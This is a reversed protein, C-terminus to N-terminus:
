GMCIEDQTYIFDKNRYLDHSEHVKDNDLYMGNAVISDFETLCIQRKNKLYFKYFKLSCFNMKFRNVM